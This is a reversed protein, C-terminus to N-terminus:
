GNSVLQKTLNEIIALLRSNQERLHEVENQKPSAEISPTRGTVDFGAVMLDAYTFLLAGNLDSKGASKLRGDKWARRITDPHVGSLRAAERISFRKYTTIVKKGKSLNCSQCSKVLNEVKDAGGAALPMLHDMHWKKGDPDLQNTGSRGCHACAIVEFMLDFARQRVQWSRRSM